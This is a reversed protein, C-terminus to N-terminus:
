FNGAVDELVIEKKDTVLHYIEKLQEHTITLLKYVDDINIDGINLMVKISENYRYKTYELIINLKENM